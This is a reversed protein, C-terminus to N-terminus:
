TNTNKKATSNPKSTPWRLGSLCHRSRPMWSRCSRNLRCRLLGRGSLIGPGSGWTRSGGSLADHCTGSLEIAGTTTEIDDHAIVEIDFDAVIEFMRVTAEDVQDIGNNHMAAVFSSTSRCHARAWSALQDDDAPVRHANDDFFAILRETFQGPSPLDRCARDLQDKFRVTNGFEALLEDSPEIGDFTENNLQEALEDVGTSVFEM